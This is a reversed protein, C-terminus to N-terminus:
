ESREPIALLTGPKLALPDHLGNASAITRWRTSDGYYRASIRDLSDGVRVLHTRNPTPTGSTPNQPGWNADPEYQECNMEVNARLPLGDSSFYTFTVSLNTIIARFTHISAGWNFKVWPPRGNNRTADYGSLSTDVKMLGLLQDTYSTVSTGAATTDFVLSLSFTGSEGGAFRKTPTVQGPIAEAEWRNAATFSFKAPNFMCDIRAGTETELFAKQLQSPATM